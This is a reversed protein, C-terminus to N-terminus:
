DSLLCFLLSCPMCDPTSESVPRKLPVQEVVHALCCGHYLDMVNKVSIGFFIIDYNQINFEEKQSLDACRDSM